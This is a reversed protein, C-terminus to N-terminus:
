FKFNPNDNAQDTADDVSELVSNECGQRSISPNLPSTLEPM